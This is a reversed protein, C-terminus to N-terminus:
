ALLRHQLAPLRARQEEREKGDIMATIVADDNGNAQALVRGWSDIIMSHGFTKRGGPHTGAQAPALLHAINEIARARLLIEWHAAGTERTFASPAVIIDPKQMARFLEPFRLDYCVCLGIRGLDTDVAIPAHGPVITTTEDAKDQRGVFRFLHMKDYRALRQGDPAYLPCASFVRGNGADIPLAGGVLYISHQQAAKALFDQIPGSNDKEAIRLKLTEDAAILPFYEPLAALKAGQDAAQQLLEGARALNAAVNDAANMQLCAAIFKQPM